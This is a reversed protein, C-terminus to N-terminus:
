FIASHSDPDTVVHSIAFNNISFATFTKNKINNVVVWNNNTASIRLDSRQLQLDLQHKSKPEFRKQEQNFYYLILTEGFHLIKRTNGADPDFGIDCIGFANSSRLRIDPFQNLEAIVAGSSRDYVDVNQDKQGYGVHKHVYIRQDDTFTHDFFTPHIYENDKSYAYFDTSYTHQSRLCNITANEVKWWALTGNDSVTLLTNDQNWTAFHVHDTNLLPYTKEEPTLANQILVPTSELSQQNIIKLKYNESLLILDKQKGYFAYRLDVTSIFLTTIKPDARTMQIIRTPRWYDFNLVTERWEHSVHSLARTDEVYEVIHHLLEYPLITTM